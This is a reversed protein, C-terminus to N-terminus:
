DRTLRRALMQRGIRWAFVPLTTVYRKSLRKPEQMLRHLWELGMSQMWLPARMVLGANFDFGAGVGIMVADFESRHERMWKEQKPAGLGVLVVDARARRIRNCVEADEASTLPRFPPSISDVIEIRPFGAIVREALQRLVEETSGYFVVRYGMERARSLVELMVTPGALRSQRVGTTLSMAWAVPAGDPLNIDADLLARRLAGDKLSM